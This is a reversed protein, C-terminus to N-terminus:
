REPGRDRSLVALPVEQWLRTWGPGVDIPDIDDLVLLDCGALDSQGAVPVFSPDDGRRHALAWLPYEWADEGSMLCRREHADRAHLFDTAATFAGQLGPRNAFYQTERDTVVVSGADRASLRVLPRTQNSLLWPLSASFFLGAMLGEGRCIGGVVIGIPVAALVFGPTQLRSSWPQWKIVAGFLVFGVAVALWVPLARRLSPRAVIVASAAFFLAVQLPNGADDEHRSPAPIAFDAVYSTAPDRADIGLREHIRVILTTTREDIERSGSGLHLALGRLANSVAPGIGPADNALGRVYRAPGLSANFTDVNRRAHPLILVATLAGITVLGLAARRWAFDRGCRLAWLLLIPVGFLLASPKTAVSLAVAAAGLPVLSQELTFLLSVGAVLWFAAVLDNQTSTSQLLVMPTSALVLIAARQQRASYGLTAVLSSAGV